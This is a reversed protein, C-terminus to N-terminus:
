TASSWLVSSDCLTLRTAQTADSIPQFSCEQSVGFGKIHLIVLLIVQAHDGDCLLLDCLGSCYALARRAACVTKGFLVNYYAQHRQTVVVLSNESLMELSRDVFRARSVYHRYSAISFQLVDDQRIARLDM